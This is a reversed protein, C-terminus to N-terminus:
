IWDVQLPLPMWKPTAAPFPWSLESLLVDWGRREVTLQWHEEHRELRGPRQLYSARLGDPSVAAGRPWKSAVYELLGDAAAIEEPLLEVDAVVPTESEFGCLVKNLALTFEHRAVGGGTVLHQLLHVARQNAEFSRFEDGDLWGCREFLRPFFWAFVVLGANQIWLPEADHAPEHRLRPARPPMPPLATVTREPLRRALTRAARSDDRELAIALAHAATAERAAPSDDAAGRAGLRALARVLLGIADAVPAGGTERILEALASWLLERVGSQGGPVLGAASPHTALWEVADRWEAAQTEDGAFFIEAAAGSSVAERLSAASWRATRALERWPTSARAPAGMVSRWLALRSIENTSADVGLAARLQPWAAGAILLELLRLFRLPSAFSRSTVARALAAPHSLGLSTAVHTALDLTNGPREEAVLGGLTARWAAARASAADLSRPARRLAQIARRAVTAADCGAPALTEVLAALARDSLRHPLAAVLQPRRAFNRLHAAFESTCRALAVLLWDEERGRWRAFEPARPLLGTELFTLLATAPDVPRTIEEDARASLFEDLLPALDPLAPRAANLAARLAERAAPELRAVVRRLADAGHRGALKQFLEAARTAPMRSWFALANSERPSLLDTRALADSWRDLIATVNADTATTDAAHRTERNTERNEGDRPPTTLESIAGDAGIARLAEEFQVRIRTPLRAVVARVATAGHHAVLRQALALREARSFAASFGLSNEPASAPPSEPGSAATRASTSASALASASTGHRIAEAWRKLWTQTVLSDGAAAGALRLVDEAHIELLLKPLSADHWVCALRRASRALEELVEAYGLHFHQALGLITQRLFAKANFRSGADGLLHGLIIEWKAHRFEAAPAPVFPRERQREDLDAAYALIFDAESPRLARILTAIEPDALWHVLRFRVARRHGIRRLRAVFEGPESRLEAALARAPDFGGPQDAWWPLHGHELLHFLLDLANGAESVEAAPARSPNEERLLRRLEASLASRYREPFDHAFREAPITGLHLEIRALRVHRSPCLATFVADTDALLRQRALTGATALLEQADAGPAVALHLAQTRVMHRPADNM